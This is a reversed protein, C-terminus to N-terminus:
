TRESLLFEAIRWDIATDLDVAREPPMVYAATEGSLFSRTRRLWDAEAYYVAGNLAYVPPLDQRRAVFPADLLPRMREDTTLTYMWYPHTHAESVSVVAPAGTRRALAVCADIDETSRLPSTPQLMGVAHYQPLQEIAHLVPDVGPTDDQALRAPRMFPVQAGSARAVAAIEEDDTSVILADLAASRLASEITWAILPQGQLPRMNKRPIGKSGGRAPIIGLIGRGTM